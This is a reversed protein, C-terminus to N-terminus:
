NQLTFIFKPTGEQPTLINFNENYNTKLYSIIRGRMKNSYTEQHVLPSLYLIASCVLFGVGMFINKFSLLLLVLLFIIFAVKPLFYVAFLSIITGQVGELSLSSLSNLFSYGIAFFLFSSISGWFLNYLIYKKNTM